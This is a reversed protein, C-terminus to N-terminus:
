RLFTSVIKHIDLRAGLTEIEPTSFSFKWARKDECLNEVNFEVSGVLWDGEQRPSTYRAIVYDVGLDDITQYATLAVPDPNFFQDKSFAMPGDLIIEIDGVPVVVKGLGNSSFALTYWEFPEEISLKSDVVTLTQVGRAHSTQARVRGGDSWFTAGRSAEQYGIDDGIFIAKLFVIKQQTTAIERFFVDRTTDLVVKYVGESLGPVVLELVRLDTEVADALTDGDDSARAEAIPKNNEDFVTARIIDEGNERNTDTYLFSFSLTENKIYTKFEHHGRLTVDIVQVDFSPQYGTIRYPANFDARYTAVRDRSPPNAFFDAVSDYVRERQLLVMGDEDIRNWQSEDILRNHLPILTYADPRASALAGLEVIPLAENQFWVELEVRTFDDRHPHIFFSAPDSIISQFADRSQARTVEEVRDGPSLEDIFPSREGVVHEVVFTGSPVLWKNLLWGFLSIPILIILTQILRTIFTM